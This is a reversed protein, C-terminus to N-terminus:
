LTDDNSHNDNNEDNGYHNRFWRFLYVNVEDSWEKFWKMQCNCRIKNEYAEIHLDEKVIHTFTGEQFM